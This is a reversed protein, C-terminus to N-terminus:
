RASGSIEPPVPPVPPCLLGLGAFLPATDRMDGVFMRRPTPALKLLTPAAFVQHARASLPDRYIDIVELSYRGALATECVARVNAVAMLSRRTAGSVFLRLQYESRGPCDDGNAM